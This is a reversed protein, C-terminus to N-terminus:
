GSIYTKGTATVFDAKAIQHAVQALAQEDEGTTTDPVYAEIADERQVAAHELGAHPAVKAEQEEDDAM